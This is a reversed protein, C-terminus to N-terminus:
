DCDRDKKWHHKHKFRDRWERECRERERRECTGKEFGERYGCSYGAEYGRRFERSVHCPINKLDDCFKWGRLGASFGADVGDEMGSKYGREFERSIHPRPQPTVCGGIVIGHGRSGLNISLSLRDGGAHAPTAAVLTAISAVLAFTIAGTRNMLTSRNLKLTTM